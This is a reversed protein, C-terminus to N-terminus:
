LAEARVLDGNAAEPLLPLQTCSFANKILKKFVRDKFLSKETRYQAGMHADTHIYALPHLKKSVDRM